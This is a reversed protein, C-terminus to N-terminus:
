AIGENPTMELDHSYRQIEKRLKKAHVVVGEITVESDKEVEGRTKVERAIQIWTQKSINKKFGWQKL